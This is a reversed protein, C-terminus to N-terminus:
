KCRCTLRFKEPPAQWEGFNTSRGPLAAGRIKDAATDNKQIFFGVNKSKRRM